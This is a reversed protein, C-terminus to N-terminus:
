RHSPWAAVHRRRRSRGLNWGTAASPTTTTANPVISLARRASMESGPRGDVPRIPAFRMACRRDFRVIRIGRDAIM